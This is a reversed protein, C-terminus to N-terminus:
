QQQDGGPQSPAVLMGNQYQHVARKTQESYPVTSSRQRQQLQQAKRLQAQRQRYYNRGVSESSM